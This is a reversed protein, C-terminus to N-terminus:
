IVAVDDGIDHSITPMYQQFQPMSGCLCALKLAICYLVCVGCM